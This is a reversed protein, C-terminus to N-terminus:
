DATAARAATARKVTLTLSDNKVYASASEPDVESPWDAV